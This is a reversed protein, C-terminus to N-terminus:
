HSVDVPSGVKKSVAPAEANEAFADDLRVSDDALAAVDRPRARTRILEKLTSSSV